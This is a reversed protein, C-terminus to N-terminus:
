SRCPKSTVPSACAPDHGGSANMSLAACYPDSDPGTGSPRWNRVWSRAAALRRAAIDHFAPGYGQDDSGSILLVAGNIREVAIAAAGALDARRLGPEFALRLAVPDGAAVAAELEPTVVNPLYPLERGQHTWSAVPTGLIDLFSGTLVDQSIGQTILGSGVVSVVARVEPFTAGVLLAAEGGKSAGIVAFQSGSVMDHRQLYDLAQGFYELPIDQLTVPLGPLGYYALALVAYGHAALLAADDEHMGGESGGLLLVGPRPQRYSGRRPADRALDVTGDAAATFTAASRWERGRPDAQSARLAVETGPSLGDLRIRLATDLSPHEPSIELRPRPSEPAPPM